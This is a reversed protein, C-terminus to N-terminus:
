RPSWDKQTLTVLPEAPSEGAVNRQVVDNLSKTSQIQAMGAESFTESNYSEKTLLPNTLAQSFADVAVMTAMLTPLIGNERVDEAFLGVYLEVDDPKQYLGQLAAAVEPKSSIDQFTELKPYGCLKRYANYSALKNERGMEITKAETSLLCPDTNFLGTANCRQNSAEDFLAALGTDIVVDTDWMVDLISRPKGALLIESPIMTHWRYLMNFEVSMWNEQYWKEKVGMGPEVLFKFRVPTIHNIYDEIVIKLLIVILTNRTTDFVRDDDWEPNDAAILGAIRNHERLFLTSMMMLGYHLNGRPIGLAFLKNRQWDEFTEFPIGTKRDEGPLDGIDNSGPFVIELYKFCENVKGNEDFYYPPFQQGNRLQYKLRGKETDSNLRLMKTVEVTQGYLQSLDIDHTSTNKKYNGPDTRLFGDVFWQAFHPFLLTSKPSPQNGVATREFLAVVRSQEPLRALLAADSPLHRASWDRHALAPWSRYDSYSSMWLPRTPMTYVMSNILRKNFVRRLGPSSNVYDWLRPLGTTFWIRAGNKLGNKRWFGRNM